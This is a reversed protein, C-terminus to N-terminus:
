QLLVRHRHLHVGGLLPEHHVTRDDPHAPGPARADLLIVRPQDAQLLIPLGKRQDPFALRHLERPRMLERVEWESAKALVRKSSRRAMARLMVGESWSVSRFPASIFMAM